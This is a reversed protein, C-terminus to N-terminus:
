AGVVSVEAAPVIAGLAPLGAPSASGVPLALPTLGAAKLAPLSLSADEQEVGEEFAASGNSLALRCRREQQTQARMKKDMEIQFGPHLTDAVPQLYTRQDVSFKGAKKGEKFIALISENARKGKLHATDWGFNHELTWKNDDRVV